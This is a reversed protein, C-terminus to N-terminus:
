RRETRRRPEVARSALITWHKCWLYINGVVCGAARAAGGGAHCSRAVGPIFFTINDHIRGRHRLHAVNSLSTCNFVVNCFLGWSGCEAAAAHPPPPHVTCQMQVRHTVYVVSPTPVFCFVLSIRCKKDSVEACGRDLESEFLM